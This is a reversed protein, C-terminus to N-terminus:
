SFYSSTIKTAKEKEDYELLYSHGVYPKIKDLYKGTIEEDTSFLFVQHSAFPFYREVLHRRHKSDLRGLPTDIAAPLPRGAARALGWLISVALLQREGASLRKPNIPKDNAGLISLIFTNSDISISKILTRKRLLQTFSDFILESINRIHKQIMLSRFKSLTEISKSSYQIIRHDVENQFDEKVAEQIKNKLLAEKQEIDRSLRGIEEDNQDILVRRKIISEKLKERTEMVKTLIEADPIASLKREIDILASRVETVKTTIFKASDVIKQHEHETFNDILSRTEINLNLYIETKGQEARDTRDNLLTNGIAKITENSIGSDQLTKLIIQDRSELLVSLQASQEAAMEKQAKDRLSLVLEGVLSLPAPGSALERLEEEFEHLAREHSEKHVEFEKRQDFLHGGLNRYLVDNAELEKEKQEIDIQNEGRTDRIQRRKKNLDIVRKELEEAAQRINTTKISNIKKKKLIELDEALREVLDLGLLSYIASTLVESSKDLNALDEIKEGDFFILNSIQLPIFEDVRTSWTDSLVRDHKGNLKVEVVEKIGSGNQAWIRHVDYTNEHGERTHRFILEISAGDKPSVGDNISHHLFDEYSLTGRNSCKAQNGYLVLLLADLFTTKGSGNQGGILVIPKKESPPTLLLSQKGRYIGFNHLIIEDIIM